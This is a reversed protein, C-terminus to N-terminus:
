FERVIRFLHKSDNCWAIRVWPIAPKNTAGYEGGIGWLAQVDPKDIIQKIPTQLKGRLLLPHAPLVLRLPTQPDRDPVQRASPGLRFSRSRVEAVILPDIHHRQLRDAFM